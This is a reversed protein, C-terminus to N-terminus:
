PKEEDRPPRAQNVFDPDSAGFDLFNRRAQALSVRNAGGEYSPDRYQVQDDEWWCVPCIEYSGPPSEGLTLFGCCPCPYASMGVEDAIDTM